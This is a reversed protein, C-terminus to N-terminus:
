NGRRLEERDHGRIKVPCLPHRIDFLKKPQRLLELPRTMQNAVKNVINFLEFRNAPAFALALHIFPGIDHAQHRDMLRFAELKRNDDNGIQMAFWIAAFESENEITM